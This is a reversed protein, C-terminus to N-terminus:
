SVASKVVYSSGAHMQKFQHPRIHGNVKNTELDENWMAGKIQILGKGMYNNWLLAVPGVFAEVDTNALSVREEGYFIVDKGWASTYSGFTAEEQGSFYNVFPVWFDWTDFLRGTNNTYMKLADPDNKIQPHDKLYAFVELPIIAKAGRIAGGTKTAISLWATRAVSRPNSTASAFNDWQTATVLTTNNSFFTTNTMATIYDREMNHAIWWALQTLKVTPLKEGLLSTKLDKYNYEIAKASEYLKYTALSTTFDITTPSTGPTWRDGATSNGIRRINEDIKMFQGGDPDDMEFKPCIKDWLIGDMGEGMLEGLVFKTYLPNFGHRSKAGVQETYSTM